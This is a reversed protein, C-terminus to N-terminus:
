PKPERFGVLFEVVLRILVAILAVCGSAVLTVALVRPMSDFESGFIVHGAVFLIAFASLAVWYIVSAARGYQSLWTSDTSM